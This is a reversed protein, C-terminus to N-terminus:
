QVGQLSGAARSEMSCLSTAQLLSRGVYTCQVGARRAQWLGGKGGTSVSRGGGCALLGHAHKYARGAAARRARPHSGGMVCCRM